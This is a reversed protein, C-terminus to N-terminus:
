FIFDSADLDAFNVGVLTISNGGGTDIVVDAGVQVAAGANPDALDLDAVSTIAAVASLDIKELVNAANFDTITDDGHGDAFVFRDAHMGGTMLDDGAGGILTDYLNGGELTDDGDGGELLDNGGLGFLRDNGAGGQLTDDGTHGFLRDDGDGGDLNDDGAGGFLRDQGAGGSLTDDGTRGYLRDAQLGGDLVDDGDGGDLTDFGAEGRLLDNGAGGVLSDEQSGGLITDDGEEGMLTDNGDRGNMRNAGITDTMADDGATGFLQPAYHQGYIGRFNRNEPDSDWTVIFGGDALVTIASRRQGGDTYTNVQFETGVAVGAADYRQGYIGGGSGDQGFSRWTVVFGGDALAAVAPDEQFDNTYTNIQFEPGVAVGAADYRQGYIGTNSGDQTSEWTVVFGGDALATVAPERQDLNWYTNVQFELGVASGAADYRQGFIGNFNGDQGRSQWTVVFGGDALATVSPNQQYSSAYTNVQFEPGVAVGAADYRQGFIGYDSAGLSNSTWTVVFGGDALATIAPSRHYDYASGDVRFEPGVVIGAADYRQGYVGTYSGDQHDSQWIVVFGGDALAAVVPNYQNNSTYTNVQFEPGAAVGSADYRQGYVGWESGDQGASHWTVVFGGDALTAIDPDLQHNYPYRDYTYSSIQFEPGTPIAAVSM